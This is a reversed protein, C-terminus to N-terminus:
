DIVLSRFYADQIKWAGKLVLHDSKIKTHMEKYKFAYEPSIQSAVLNFHTGCFLHDYLDLEKPTFKYTQSSLASYLSAATDFRQWINDSKWMFPRFPSFEFFQAQLTQIADRLAAMDNIWLLSTHLRPHTICGSFECRHKPILRGAILKSFNWNEVNTWFCIDPDVFVAIGKDQEYMIQEMFYHHPVERELQTFKADNEKALQQVRFRAFLLSANDVVHIHANPFGTRITKFVLTTGYLNEDQQCWTLIYVNIDM